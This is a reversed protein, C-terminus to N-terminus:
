PLSVVLTCAKTEYRTNICLMFQSWPGAGPTDVVSSYLKSSLLPSMESMFFKVFLM